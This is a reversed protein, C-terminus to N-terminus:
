STSRDSRQPSSMVRTSFCSSSRWECVEDYESPDVPDAEAPRLFHLPRTRSSRSAHRTPVRRHPWVRRPQTRVRRGRAGHHGKGPEEKLRAIEEALNGSAIRPQGWSAGAKDIPAMRSADELAKTTSAKGTRSFVVKPIENVPAALVDTSSPWYAAMDAYTRSGMIHVGAQRLTDVIWTKADDLNRFMWDIEGKPGGVFGDISLNMKLILNRM